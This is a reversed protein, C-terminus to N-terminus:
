QTGNLATKVKNTLELLSINNSWLQAYCLFAYSRFESVNKSIAGVLRGLVKKDKVLARIGRRERIIPPFEYYAQLSDLKKAQHLHETWTQRVRVKGFNDLVYGKWEAKRETECMWKLSLADCQQYECNDDFIFRKFGLRSAEEFIRRYASQHDDFLVVAKEKDINEEGWNIANFDVFNKNTYYKVNSYTAIPRGPTISIIKTEPLAQRIVWTSHGRNVGSEIVVSPEPNLNRLIYWLGFSHQFRMGGTNERFPRRSYISAFQPLAQIFHERNAWAPPRPGIAQCDGPSATLHIQPSSSVKFVNNLNFYILFFAFGLSFIMYCPSVYKCGKRAQVLHNVRPSSRMVKLSIM